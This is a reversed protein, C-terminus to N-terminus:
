LILFRSFIDMCDQFILHTSLQCHYKNIYSLVRRKFRQCSYYNHLPIALFHRIKKPLFVIKYAWCYYLICGQDLQLMPIIGFSDHQKWIESTTSKSLSLMHCIDQIIIGGQNGIYSSYYNDCIFYYLLKNKMTDGEELLFNGHGNGIFFLDFCSTILRWITLRLFWLPGSRFPRFNHVLAM